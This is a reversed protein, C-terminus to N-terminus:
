LNQSPEIFTRIRAREDIDLFDLPESASSSQIIFQSRVLNHPPSLSFFYLEVLIWLAGGFLFGFLM